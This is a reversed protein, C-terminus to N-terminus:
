PDATIVATTLDTHNVGRQGGNAASTGRRRSRPSGWRIPQPVPTDARVGKHFLLARRGAWVTVVAMWIFLVGM